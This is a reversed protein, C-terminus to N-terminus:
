AQKPAEIRGVDCQCIDGDPFQHQCGHENHESIAHQCEVCQPEEPRAAEGMALVGRLKDLYSQAKDLDEVGNKEAWRAIYKTVQAELYPWRACLDWHQIEGGCHPCVGSCKGYHTGGVQAVVANPEEQM